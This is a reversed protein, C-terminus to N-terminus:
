IGSNKQCLALASGTLGLCPNSAPQGPAAITGTPSGFTGFAGGGYPAGPTGLNTGSWTIGTLANWIQLHTGQWAVVLLIGGLAVIGLAAWNLKGM